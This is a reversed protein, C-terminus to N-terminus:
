AVNEMCAKEAYYLHRDYIFLFVDHNKEGFDLLDESQHSGSKEMALVNLRAVNLTRKNLVYFRRRDTFILISRDENLIREDNFLIRDFRKPNKM